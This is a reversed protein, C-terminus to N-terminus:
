LCPGMLSATDCSGIGLGRALDCERGGRVGFVGLVGLAFATLPPNLMSKTLKVGLSETFSSLSTAGLPLEFVLALRSNSAFSFLFFNLSAAKFATCTAPPSTETKSLAIKVHNDVVTM